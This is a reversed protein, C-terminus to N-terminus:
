DFYVKIKEGERVVKYLIKGENNLSNDFGHEERAKKLAEMPTKTLSETASINKGKWKQKIKPFEVNATIYQLSQLSQDAKVTTRPVM